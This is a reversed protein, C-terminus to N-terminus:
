ELVYKLGVLLQLSSIKWGDASPDDSMTTFPFDYVIMPTLIAKDTVSIDYGGGLLASFRTSKVGQIAGDQLTEELTGNEFTVDHVVTGNQLVVDTSTLQRTHTFSSSMLFGIGAGLQLFLGGRMFQYRIGPTVTFYTAKVEGHRNFKITGTDVMDNPQYRITAKDTLLQDSTHGLAHIGAKLSIAWDYDLPLEFVLDGIFGTGKGDSFTCGCAADFTGEQRHLGLGLEVGARAPLAGPGFFNGRSIIQAQLEPAFTLVGMVAVLVSFIIRKQMRKKM